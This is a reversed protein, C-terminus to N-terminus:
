TFVEIFNHATTTGMIDLLITTEERALEEAEPASRKEGAMNAQVKRKGRLCDFRWSEAAATRRIIATGASNKQESSLDSHFSLTLSRSPFSLLSSLSLFQVLLVDIVVIGSLLSPLPLQCACVQQEQKAAARSSEASRQGVWRRTSTYSTGDRDRDRGQRRRQFSALRGGGARVVVVRVRAVKASARSLSLVM